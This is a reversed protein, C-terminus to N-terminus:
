TDSSFCVEEGEQRESMYRTMLERYRLDDLVDRETMKLAARSHALDHTLFACGLIFTELPNLFPEGARLLEPGIILEAMEWLADLHTIDHVTLHPADRGIETAFTSARDHFRSFAEKLRARQNDLGDSQPEFSQQWILTSIYM